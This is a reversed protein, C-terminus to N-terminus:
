EWEQAERIEAQVLTEQLEQWNVTPAPADQLLKGQQLYLLRDCFQRAMDLQHNVMLISTQHSQALETLVNMVHSGRGADLASTPEDLLLVKPQIILARAIAVLQRQGLSLQVETRELWESPIHLRELWENVRQQITPRPIGRLLLPYFLADQVKMDLLKSEQLVLTIERRLELIPIQQINRGELYINGQFPENLRNLLRLLSTKGAGSPGVLAIRDGPAVDFSVDKLLYQAGPPLENPKVTKGLAVIGKSALSVQEVQIQTPQSTHL